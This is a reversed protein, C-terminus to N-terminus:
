LPFAAALARDSAFHAAFSPDLIMKRIIARALNELERYLSRTAEDLNVLALAHVLDSRKEYMQRLEAESVALAPDIHGIHRLREVFAATSGVTRGNARREGRIKVLSELATVLLPWRIDTYYQRAAMEFYWFAAKLRSPVAAPNWKQVLNTLLPVDGPLLWNDNVDLVFAPEGVRPGIQWKAPPEGLTRIRAAHTLGVSTPHVLRSLAIATRLRLDPDFDAEGAKPEPAPSRIFAYGGTDQRFPHYNRGCPETAELIWQRLEDDLMAIWLDGDVQAPEEFYVVNRTSKADHHVYPSQVMALDTVEATIQFFKMRWRALPMVYREQALPAKIGDAEKLRPQGRPIGLVTLRPTDAPAGTRRTRFARAPM